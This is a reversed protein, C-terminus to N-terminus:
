SAGQQSNGDGVRQVSSCLCASAAPYRGSTAPSHAAAGPLGGPGTVGQSINKSTFCESVGAKNLRPREIQVTLHPVAGVSMPGLVDKRSEPVKLQNMSYNGM